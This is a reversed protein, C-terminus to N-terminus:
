FQTHVLLQTFFYVEFDLGQHRKFDVLSKFLLPFFLDHHMRSKGESNLNKDNAGPTLGAMGNTDSSTPTGNQGLPM